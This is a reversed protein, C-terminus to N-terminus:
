RVFRVVVRTRVVQYSSVGNAGTGACVYADGDKRWGERSEFYRDWGSAFPSEVVEVSVNARGDTSDPGSRNHPFEIASGNSSVSVTVTGGSLQRDRDGEVTVVPLVARDDTCVFPPASEVVAMGAGDSRFVAGGEYGVTTDEYRYRIAGVDLIEDYVTAPGSTGTVRIRLQSESGPVLSLRGRDLDLEGTRAVTRGDQIEGVNGGVLQLSREANRLQEGERIEQLQGYGFVTVTGVSAVIVAFMLVFGLSQSIGRDSV